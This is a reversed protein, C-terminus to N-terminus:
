DIYHEYWEELFVLDWLQTGDDRKGDIHANWKQKLSNKDWADREGLRLIAERGREKLRGRFWEDLPVGFGQKKRDIVADPLYSRFAEKLVVKKKIGPM